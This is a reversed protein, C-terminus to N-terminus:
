GENQEQSSSPISTSGKLHVTKRLDNLRKLNKSSIVGKFVLKVVEPAITDVPFEDFQRVWVKPEPIDDDANKALAWTINIFDVFELGGLHAAANILADGDAMKLIDSVSMDGGKGAEDALGSMIDLAAAFMPMLTPIIDQGFQDRYTMAWGVNNDLRVEKNGIKITKIM